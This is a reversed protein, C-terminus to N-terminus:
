EGDALKGAVKNLSYILKVANAGAELDSALERLYSVASEVDSVGHKHEYLARLTAQVGTFNAANAFKNYETAAERYDVAHKVVLTEDLIPDILERTTARPHKSAIASLDPLTPESTAPVLPFGSIQDESKPM